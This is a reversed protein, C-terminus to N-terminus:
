ETDLVYHIGVKKTRNLHLLLMYGKTAMGKASLTISSASM